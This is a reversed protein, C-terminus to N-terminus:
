TEFHFRFKSLDLNTHSYLPMENRIRGLSQVDFKEFKTARCFVFQRTDLWYRWFGRLSRYEKRLAAFFEYDTASDVIPIVRPQLQGNRPVCILVFLATTSPGNELQSPFGIRKSNVRKELGSDNATTTSSSLKHSAQFSLRQLQHHYLRDLTAKLLLV